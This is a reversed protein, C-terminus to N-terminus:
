PEQSFFGHYQCRKREEAERRERSYRAGLGGHALSAGREIAPGKRFRLAEDDMADGRARNGDLIPAVLRVDLDAVFVVM